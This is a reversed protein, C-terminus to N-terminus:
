GNLVVFTGELLFAQSLFACSFLEGRFDSVERAGDGALDALVVLDETRDASSVDSIREFFAAEVHSLTRNVDFVWDLSEANVSNGQLESWFDGCGEFDPNNLSLLSKM